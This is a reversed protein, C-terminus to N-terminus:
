QHHNCVVRAGETTALAKLTPTTSRDDDNSELSIPSTSALFDTWYHLQIPLPPLSLLLLTGFAVQERLLCRKRTSAPCLLSSCHVRSGCRWALWPPTRRADISICRRVVADRVVNPTTQSPHHPTPATTTGGIGKRGIQIHHPVTQSHRTTSYLTSGVHFCPLTIMIMRVRDALRLATCKASRVQTSM